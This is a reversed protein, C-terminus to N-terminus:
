GELIEEIEFGKDSDLILNKLESAARKSVRRASTKTDAIALFQIEIKSVGDCVGRPHSKIYVDPYRKVIKELFPALSSEYGHVLRLVTMQRNKTHESAKVIRIVSKEFIEKMENPVGPLCFISSTDSIIHVGPASGVPNTLPEAGEPLTAMKLRSSTFEIKKVDNEINRSSYRRKLMRIAKDNPVLTRNLAKAVSELTIDDYTPGLGGSSIIWSTKRALAEKVAAVIEDVNDGIITCRRMIGGIESIKGMMWHANSNLTNGNLLEHGVSIIEFTLAM